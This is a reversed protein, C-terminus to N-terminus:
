NRIIELFRDIRRIGEWITEMDLHAFCIRMRNKYGFAEGPIVSIKEDSLLKISWDPYKKLDILIQPFITLGGKSIDLSLTQSEKILKSIELYKTKVKEIDNHHKIKDRIENLFGLQLFTPSELSYASLYSIIEQTFKSKSIMYSIRFGPLGYSKSSSNFIILDYDNIDKVTDRISTFETDDYFVLDSFVEDVALILNYKKALNVINMLEKRTFVKGTPNNPNNLVVLKVKTHGEIFNSFEKPDLEFNSNLRYQYFGCHSKELIEKYSSWIPDILIVEEDKKLINDLVAKFLIKVGTSIAINTSNVKYKNALAILLSEEGSAKPYRYQGNRLEDLM